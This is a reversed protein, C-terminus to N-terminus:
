DLAAKETEMAIFAELRNDYRTKGGQSADSARVFNSKKSAKDYRAIEEGNTESFVKIKRFEGVMAAKLNARDYATKDTLAAQSEFDLYLRRFVDGERPPLALGGGPAAGWLGCGGLAGAASLMQLPTVM